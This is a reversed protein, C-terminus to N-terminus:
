SWFVHCATVLCRLPLDRRLRETIQYKELEQPSKEVADALQYITINNVICQYLVKPRVLEYYTWDYIRFFAESLATLQDVNSDSEYDHRQQYLFDVLMNLQQIVEISVHCVRDLLGLAQRPNAVLPSLLRLLQPRVMSFPQAWSRRIMERLADVFGAQLNSNGKLRRWGATLETLYDCRDLESSLEWHDESYEDLESRYDRVLYNYARSDEQWQFQEIGALLLRAWATRDTGSVKERLAQLEEAIIEWRNMLGAFTWRRAAFRAMLELPGRCELLQKCRPRLVEEPDGQLERDYLELLRADFGKAQLGATLWDRRDRVPDLKPQLVLLWYLCAYHVSDNAPTRELEWLQRYAEAPDGEAALRWAAHAPNNDAPVRMATEAPVIVAAELEESADAHQVTSDGSPKDESSSGNANCSERYQVYGELMEYAARIRRFQEPFHEPKFIRILRTYAKRLERQDVHRDVGLLAFPDAPWQAPDDPLHSDSM